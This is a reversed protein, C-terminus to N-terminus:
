LRFIINRVEPSPSFRDPVKRVRKRPIGLCTTDDDTALDPVPLLADQDDSVGVVPRVGATEGKPVSLRRKNRVRQKSNSFGRKRPMTTFGHFSRASRDIKVKVELNSGIGSRQTADFNLKSTKNQKEKKETHGSKKALLDGFVNFLCIPAGNVTKLFDWIKGRM